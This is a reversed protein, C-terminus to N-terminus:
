EKIVQFKCTDTNNAAYEAATSGAYGHITVPTYGPLKYQPTYIKTNPNLFTIDSITNNCCFFAETDLIDLSKPLTVTIKEKQESSSLFANDFANFEIQYLGEPFELSKLSFLNGFAGNEILLLSSPLKITEVPSTKNGINHFAEKGIVAIGESFTLSVGKAYSVQEYGMIRDKSETEKVNYQTIVPLTEIYGEDTPKIHKGVVLVPLDDITSPFVIDTDNGIYKTIQVYTDYVNYEFEDNSTPYQLKANNVIDSIQWYKSLSSYQINESSELNSETLEIQSETIEEISPSEQIPQSEEIISSELVSPSGIPMETPKTNNENSCATLLTSTIATALIVSLMKKQM